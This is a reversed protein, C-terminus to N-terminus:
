GIAALQRHLEVALNAQRAAERARAALHDYRLATAETNRAGSVRTMHASRAYAEANSTETRVLILFYEALERHASSTRATRALEDLEARTPLPAGKGGEFGSVPVLRRPTGRISLILHYAAADRAARADAIAAQAQRARRERGDIAVPHNPNGSPLAALGSYRDADARYVAALAIFHKALAAHARPTDAAVLRQVELTNVLGAANQATVTQATAMALAGITFIRLFIRMFAAPAVAIGANRREFVPLDRSACRRAHFKVRHTRFDAAAGDGEAHLLHDPYQDFVHAACFRGISLVSSSSQSLV